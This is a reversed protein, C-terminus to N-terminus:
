DSGLERAIKEAIGAFVAQHPGGIEALRRHCERVHQAYDCASDSKLPLPEFDGAAPPLDEVVPLLKHLQMSGLLQKCHECPGSVAFRPPSQRGFRKYLDVLGGMFTSDLHECHSLDLVVSPADGALCAKAQEHFVESDRFTGRGEVRFLYGAGTRAVKVSSM